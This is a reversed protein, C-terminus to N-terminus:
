QSARLTGARVARALAGPRRTSLLWYPTPDRPDALDIRVGTRVYPRLLLYARADARPGALMRTSDADLATVTACLGLPIVARGAHLRGDAVRIRASGWRWLAFAALGFSGLGAGFAVLPPAALVFAWWVVVGFLAALLWWTVPM